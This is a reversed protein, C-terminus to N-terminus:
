GQRIANGEVDPNSVSAQANLTRWPATSRRIPQPYQSARQLSEMVISVGAGTGFYGCIDDQAFDSCTKQVSEELMDAQKVVATADERPSHNEYRSARYKQSLATPVLRIIMASDSQEGQLSAHSPKNGIASYPPASATMTSPLEPSDTFLQELFTYEKTRTSAVTEQMNVQMPFCQRYLMMLILPTGFVVISWIEVTHYIYTTKQVKNGYFPIPAPDDLDDVVHNAVYFCVTMMSLEVGILCVTQTATYFLFSRLVAIRSDRTPKGGLRQHFLIVQPQYKFVFSAATTLRPWFTAKTKTHEDEKSDEVDHRVAGNSSPSNTREESPAEYSRQSKPQLDEHLSLEDKRLLEQLRLERYRLRSPPHLSDNLLCPQITCRQM